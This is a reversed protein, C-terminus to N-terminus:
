KKKYKKQINKIHSIPIPSRDPLPDVNSAIDLFDELIKWNDECKILSELEKLTLFKFTISHEQKSM